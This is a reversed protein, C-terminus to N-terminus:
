PPVGNGSLTNGTITNGSSLYELIGNLANGTVTNGTVTTGTVGNRLYIGYGANDQITNSQLTHGRTNSMEIGSRPGTHLTGVGNGRLTCGEITVRTIFASGTTAGPVGVEIGDGANDAFLCGTVLVNDVTQGSNPEIDLGDEPITGQSRTFTAHKVIIGSGGTISLGQRRNHDATISCLSVSSADAIMFGDGWCEKATVGAIAIRQAQGTIRLGVGQEGTTGLHAAREGLLTGGVVNVDSVGSIRLITYNDASNSIAALVAGSDLALTMRNRLQLSVLADVRYTGAPIRVTGGTGALADVAKQLAATDDALGDGKANFPADKVNVLASSTPAPACDAAPLGPSPATAAGDKAGGGCAWLLAMGALLPGLRRGGTGPQPRSRPLPGAPPHIRM